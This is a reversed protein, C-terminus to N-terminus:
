QSSCVGKVQWYLAFTYRSGLYRFPKLQSDCSVFMGGRGVEAWIHFYADEWLVTCRRLPTVGFTDNHFTEVENM